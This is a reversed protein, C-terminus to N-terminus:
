KEHTWSEASDWLNKIETNLHEFWAGDEKRYISKPKRLGGSTKFTHREIFVIGHNTNSEMLYASYDILFDIVRIQLLNPAVKKLESLTELSSIIRTKEHDSNIKGPFRMAAMKCANGNPSILIFKISHGLKLKEEFIHYYATLTSNHHTGVIIIENASELRQTFESPFEHIFDSKIALSSVKNLVQDIRHRNGLISVTMLAMIALNVAILNDIKIISLLNFGALTLALIVTVYLDVNEGRKIDQLITKHLKM